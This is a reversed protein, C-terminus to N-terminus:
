FGFKNLNTHLTSVTHIREDNRRDDETKHAWEYKQQKRNCEYESIRLESIDDRALLSRSTV